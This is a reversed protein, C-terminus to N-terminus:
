VLGLDLKGGLYRLGRKIMRIHPEGPNQMFKAAKSTLLTLDPRTWNQAHNLSMVVSRYWAHERDGKHREICDVRSLRLSPSVPVQEPKGPGDYYGAKRRVHELYPRQHLRIVDM